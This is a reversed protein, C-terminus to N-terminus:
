KSFEIILESGLDKGINQDFSLDYLGDLVNKDIIKNDIMNQMQDHTFPKILFSETYLIKFNYITILKTLSISDFVRLTQFKINSESKEKTEKILGMYKALLRHFSNANPVNVHIITEPSSIQILKKFFVDLDEIEHLLSSVLIFDYSNNSTYSEFFCNVIETNQIDREIILNKNLNHFYQSPEIITLKDFKYDLLVQSQLGCGIELINKAKYVKLRELVKRKRYHVQEKEFPQDIYDDCYKNLDRSM